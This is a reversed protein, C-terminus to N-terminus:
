FHVLKYKTQGDEPYLIFKINQGKLLYEESEKRLKRFDASELFSRLLEVREEFETDGKGAQFYNRALNQYERKAVTEICHSLDPILEVQVM